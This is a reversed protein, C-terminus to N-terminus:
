RKGLKAIADRAAKASNEISLPLKQLEICCICSICPTRACTDDQWACMQEAFRNAERIVDDESAISSILKRRVLAERLVDVPGKIARKM